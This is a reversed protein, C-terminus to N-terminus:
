RKKAQGTVVKATGIRTLMQHVANASTFVHHATEWDAHENANGFRAVRLAAGYALFQSLDAPVAGEQIAVKLADIIRVPDDGLLEQALAAQDSWAHVGTDAALLPSLQGAAEDCM